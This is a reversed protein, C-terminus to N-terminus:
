TEEKYSVMEMYLIFIINYVKDNNLTDVIAVTFM